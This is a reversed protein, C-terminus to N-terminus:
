LQDSRTSYGDTLLCIKGHECREASSKLLLQADFGKVSALQQIGGRVSPTTTLSRCNRPPCFPNPHQQSCVLFTVVMPAIFCRDVVLGTCSWLSWEKTNETRQGESGVPEFSPIFGGEPLYLIWWHRTLVLSGLFVEGLIGTGM